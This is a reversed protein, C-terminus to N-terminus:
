DVPLYTNDLSYGSVNLHTAKYNKFLALGMHDKGWGSFVTIQVHLLTM